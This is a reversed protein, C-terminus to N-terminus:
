LPLSVNRTAFSTAPIWTPFATLIPVAVIGVTTLSIYAIVWEPCNDSIIAVRDGPKIGRALLLSSLRRSKEQVQAFTLTEGDVAGLAPFNQHRQFARDFLAAITNKPLEILM